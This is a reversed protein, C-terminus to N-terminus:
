KSKPNKALTPVGTRPANAVAVRRVAGTRVSRGTRSVRVVGQTPTAQNRGYLAICGADCIDIDGDAELYFKLWARKLYLKIKLKSANGKGVVNKKWQPPTVQVVTAGASIAGAALSGHVQALPFLAKLGGRGPSFVPLELYVTTPEDLERVVRRMWRFAELCRSPITKTTMKYVHIAYGEDKLVVAVCKVSSPDVGVIRSM